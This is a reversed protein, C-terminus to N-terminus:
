FIRREKRETSRDINSAAAAPPLADGAELDTSSRQAVMEWIRQHVTRSTESHLRGIRANVRQFITVLYLYFCFCYHSKM